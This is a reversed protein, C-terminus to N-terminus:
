DILDLKGWGIRTEIATQTAGEPLAFRHIETFGSNMAHKPQRLMTRPFNALPSNRFNALPSDERSSLPIFLRNSPRPSHYPNHEGALSVGARPFVLTRAAFSLRGHAPTGGHRGGRAPCDWGCIRLMQMKEASLDPTVQRAPVSLRKWFINM